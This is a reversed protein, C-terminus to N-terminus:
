KRVVQIVDGPLLATTSDASFVTPGDPGTRHIAYTHTADQLDVTGIIQESAALDRRALTVANRAAIAENKANRLEVTLDLTWGTALEGVMSDILALSTEAEARESLIRIVLLQATMLDAQRNSVRDQTMLGRASLTESTALQEEFLVVRDRQLALEETMSSIQRAVSERQAILSVRQQELRGRRLAHVRAEIARVPALLDPDLGGIDVASVSPEHGLEKEFIEIQVLARALRDTEDLVRTAARQAELIELLQPADEDRRSSGLSAVAALVNIGPRWPLQGSRVGAGYVAIPRWEAVDVLIFSPSVSTAKTLAAAIAAQAGDLDQGAVTVSVGAVRIKGDMGVMADRDLEPLRAVRIALIDGPALRLNESVTQTPSMVRQTALTLQEAGIPGAIILASCLTLIKLGGTM